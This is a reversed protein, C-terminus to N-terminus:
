YEAVLERFGGIVLDGRAFDLTTALFFDSFLDAFLDALLKFSM